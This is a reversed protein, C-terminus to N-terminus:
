QPGANVAKSPKCFGLCSTAAAVAAKDAIRRWHISSRHKYADVTEDILALAFDLHDAWPGANGALGRLVETVFEAKEPGSREAQVEATAVLQLVIQSITLLDPRDGVHHRIQTIFEAIETGELAHTRRKDADSLATTVSVAWPMIYGWYDADGRTSAALNALVASALAQLERGTHTNQALERAVEMIRRIVVPGEAAAGTLGAFERGITRSIREVKQVQTM